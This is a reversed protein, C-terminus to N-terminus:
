KVLVKKGGQVYIGPQLGKLSNGMLQGQLNFVRTDCSKLLEGNEIESISTEVGDISVRLMQPSVNEPLKLYARLGPMVNEGEIPEFFKGGAGLFLEKGGTQLEAPSWTGVFQVSEGNSNTKTVTMPVLNNIRQTLTPTNVTTQPCILMPEGYFAHDTKESFVLTNGDFSTLHRVKANGLVEKCPNIGLDVPSCFTYWTNANFTRMIKYTGWQGLRPKLWDETYTTQDNLEITGSNNKSNKLTYKFTANGVGTVSCRGFVYYAKSYFATNDCFTSQLSNGWCADLSNIRIGTGKECSFLVNTLDSLTPTVTVETSGNHLYFKPTTGNEFYVHLANGNTASLVASNANAENSGGAISFINVRQGATCRSLDMAIVMVQSNFDFNEVDAIFTGSSSTNYLYDTTGFKWGNAMATNASSLMLFALCLKTFLKKM